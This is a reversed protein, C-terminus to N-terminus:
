YRSGTNYPGNARNPGSAVAKAIMVVVAIGGIMVALAIVIVVIAAIWRVAQPNNALAKGTSSANMTPVRRGFQDERYGWAVGCHPCNSSSSQSKTIGARCKSCTGVIGNEREEERQRNYEERALRQQEVQEQFKAQQAERRQREEEQRQAYAEARLRNEEENRQRAEEQRQRLQDMAEQASSPGSFPPPGPDSPGSYPAPNSALNGGDSPIVLPAPILHEEGRSALLEKVYEQDASGLQYFEITVSRGARSLVVKRGFMRVFRATTQEGKQDTWTRNKIAIPKKLAKPQEEASSGPPSETSQPDTPQAAPDGEAAAAPLFPNAPVTETEALTPPSAVAPATEDPPEKGEALLRAIAQDKESLQALPLTFLQGGKLFTVEGDLERVFEAQMTRGKVDTWTREKAAAQEIALIVLGIAISRYFLM